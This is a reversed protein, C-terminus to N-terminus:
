AALLERTAKSPLFPLLHLLKPHDRDCPYDTIVKRTYRDVIVMVFQGGPEVVVPPLWGRVFGLVNRDHSSVIV